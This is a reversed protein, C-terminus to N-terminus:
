FFPLRPPPPLLREPTNAAAPPLAAPPAISERERERLVGRSYQGRLRPTPRSTATSAAARWARRRSSCPRWRNNHLPLKLAPSSSDTPRRRDADFSLRPRAHKGQCREESCCGRKVEEFPKFVVGTVTEEKEKGRGGSHAGGGGGAAAACRLLAAQRGAGQRCLAPADGPRTSLRPTALLSSLAAAM